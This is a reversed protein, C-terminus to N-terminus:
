IGGIGAGPWNSSAGDAESKERVGDKHRISGRQGRRCLQTRYLSGGSGRGAMGVTINGPCNDGLCRWKRRHRSWIGFGACTSLSTPAWSAVMVFTVRLTPLITELSPM